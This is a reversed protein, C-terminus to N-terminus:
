GGLRAHNLVVIDKTLACAIIGSFGASREVNVFDSASYHSWSGFRALKVGKRLFADLSCSGWGYCFATIDVCIDVTKTCLSESASPYVVETDVVCSTL